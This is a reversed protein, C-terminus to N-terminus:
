FRSVWEALKLYLAMTREPKSKWPDDELLSLANMYSQLALEHAGRSSASDGADISLDLLEDRRHHERLLPLCRKAHEAIRYVDPVTDHLMMLIVRFSMKPITGEPLNAAEAQAAQRYRDHAFSCMDRARQVLWGEQIAHQLGRMSGRTTSLATEGVTHVAKPINWMGDTDDDSSSGSSDEWDM